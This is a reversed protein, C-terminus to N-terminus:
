GLTRTGRVKDKTPSMAEEMERKAEAAKLAITIAEDMVVDSPLRPQFLVTTRLKQGSFRFFCPHTNPKANEFGLFHAMTGYFHLFLVVNETVACSM